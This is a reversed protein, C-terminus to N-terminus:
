FQINYRAFADKISIQKVFLNTPTPRTSESVVEAQSQPRSKPKPIFHVNQLHKWLTSTGGTYAFSKTPCKMCVAFKKGGEEKLKYYKWIDSKKPPAKDVSVNSGSPVEADSGSAMQPRSAESHGSM